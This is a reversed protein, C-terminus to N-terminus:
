PSTKATDHFRERLSDRWAEVRALVDERLGLRLPSQQVALSVKEAVFCLFQYDNHLSFDRKGGMGVLVQFLRDGAHTGKVALFGEPKDEFVLQLTDFEQSETDVEACCGQLRELPWRLRACAKGFQRQRTVGTISTEM